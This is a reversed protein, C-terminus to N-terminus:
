FGTGAESTSIKTKENLADLDNVLTTEATSIDTSNLNTVDGIAIGLVLGNAGIRIQVTYTHKDNIKNRIKSIQKAYNSANNTDAYNLSKLIKSNLTNSTDDKTRLIIVPVKDKEDQYTDLNAAVRTLLAKVNSGTQKGQYTTFNNNFAEKEQTNMSSMSGTITSNAQNFVYIGIAIILISLLIAGAIILAKSANEM